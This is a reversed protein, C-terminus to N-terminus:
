AGTSTPGLEAERTQIFGRLSPEFDDPLEDKIVTLQDLNKAEAIERAYDSVKKGTNIKADLRRDAADQNEVSRNELEKRARAVLDPKDDIKMLIWELFGVDVLEWPQGRWEKGIPCHTSLPKQHHTPFVQASPEESPNFPDPAGPAIKDPDMDEVDQTFIESLGACNLVADILSSKKAMKLAKNADDYDQGIRRSGIGESMTSGNSDLILCRLVILEAGAQLNTMALELDPWHARFGLMGVIKEAGPKWLSPKSFHYPNMCRAGDPCVDKKIVHIRGWDTGERLEEKIWEILAKRNKKRRDLGANFSSPKIDFAARLEIAQGENNINTVAPVAAQDTKDNM